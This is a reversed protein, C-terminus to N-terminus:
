VWCPASSQQGCAPPAWVDPLLHPCVLCLAGKSAAQTMRPEQRARPKPETGRQQHSEAMTRAHCTSPLASMSVWLWASPGQKRPSGRRYAGAPALGWVQAATGPRKGRAAATQASLDQPTEGEECRARKPSQGALAAKWGLFHPTLIPEVKRDM